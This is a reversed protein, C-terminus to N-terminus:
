VSLVGTPIEKVFSSIFITTLTKTGAIYNVPVQQVGKVDM